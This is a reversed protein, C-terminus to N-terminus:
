IEPFFKLFTKNELDYLVLYFYTYACYLNRGHFLVELRYVMGSEYTNTLNLQHVFKICSTKHLKLARFGRVM